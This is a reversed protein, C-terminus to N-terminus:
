ANYINVMKHKQVSTRKIVEQEYIKWARLFGNKYSEPTFPRKNLSIKM